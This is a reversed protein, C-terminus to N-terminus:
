ATRVSQQGILCAVDTAISVIARAMNAAEDDSVFSVTREISGVDGPLARASDALLRTLPGGIDIPLAGANIHLVNDRLASVLRERFPAPGTLTVVARQLKEHAYALVGTEITQM